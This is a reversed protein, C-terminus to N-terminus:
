PMQLKLSINKSMAREIKVRNELTMGNQFASPNVIIINYSFKQYCQRGILFWCFQSPPFLKKDGDGILIKREYSDSNKYYLKLCWFFNQSHPQSPGGLIGVKKNFCKQFFTFFTSGGGLILFFPPRSEESKKWSGGSGWFFRNKSHLMKPFFHLFYVGM